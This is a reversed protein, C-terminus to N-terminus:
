KPSNDSSTRNKLKENLQCQILALKSSLESGMTMGSTSTRKLEAAASETRILFVDNDGVSGNPPPPPVSFSQSRGGLFEGEKNLLLLNAYESKAVNQDPVPAVYLGVPTEKMDPAFLPSASVPSKSRESEGDTVSQPPTPYIPKVMSANSSSVSKPIRPSHSGSGSRPTAPYSLTMNSSAGNQFSYSALSPRSGGRSARGDLTSYKTPFHTNFSKGRKVSDKKDSKSIKCKVTGM